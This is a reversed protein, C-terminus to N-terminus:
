VTWAFCFVLIVMKKGVQELLWSSGPQQESGAPCWPSNKLESGQFCSRLFSETAILLCVTFKWDAGERGEGHNISYWPSPSLFFFHKSLYPNSNPPLSLFFPAESALTLEGLLRGGLLFDRREWSQNRVSSRWHMVWTIAVNGRQLSCVQKKPLCGSNKHM